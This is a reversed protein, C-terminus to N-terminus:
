ASMKQFVMSRVNKLFCPIKDMWELQVNFVRIIIGLISLKCEKRRHNIKRLLMFAEGNIWGPLGGSLRYIKRMQNASFPNKRTRGASKLRLHLYDATQKETLPSIFIKEIVSNQPLGGAIEDFRDRICPEALLIISQLRRQGSSTFATQLLLKMESTSLQHADDIIISPLGNKKSIFKTRRNLNHCLEADARRRSKLCIRGTKYTGGSNFIFHNMLTTKGSGREGVVVILLNRGSVMNNLVTLRQATLPPKFFFRNQEKTDATHHDLGLIAPLPVSDQKLIGVNENMNVQEM